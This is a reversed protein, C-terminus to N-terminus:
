QFEIVGDTAPESIQNLPFNFTFSAASSRLSSIEDDEWNVVCILYILGNEGDHTYRENERRMDESQSKVERTHSTGEGHVPCKIREPRTLSLGSRALEQTIHRTSENMMIEKEVAVRLSRANQKKNQTCFIFHSFSARRDTEEPHKPEDVSFNIIIKRLQEDKEEDKKRKESAIRSKM